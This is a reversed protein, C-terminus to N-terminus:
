TIAGQAFPRNIFAVNYFVVANNYTATITGAVAASTALSLTVTKNNPDIATVTTAAQIGTGSLYVGPFWGDANPVILQLSGSASSCNVKAVTTTAAAVIRSNLIQKGAANAGAQGAATIGFTTDAAVSASCNVPITGQVCFWGYQLATNSSFAMMAVALTKGLNATNPAETAQIEWRNLTANFVSSLVCLGFQRITTSAPVVAYVFEAGGWWADQGSILTGPFVRQQTDPVYVNSPPQGLVIEINSFATM